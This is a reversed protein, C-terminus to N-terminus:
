ISPNIYHTVSGFANGRDGIGARCPRWLLVFQKRLQPSFPLGGALDRFPEGAFRPISDDTANVPQAGMAKFQLLARTLV